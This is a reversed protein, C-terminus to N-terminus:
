WPLTLQCFYFTLVVAAVVVALASPIAFKILKLWKFMLLGGVFMLVSFTFWPSLAIDLIDARFGFYFLIRPILILCITSMSSVFFRASFVVNM